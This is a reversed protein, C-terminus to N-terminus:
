KGFVWKGETKKVFLMCSFILLIGSMCILVIWAKYIQCSTGKYMSNLFALIAWRCPSIDAIARIFGPLYPLPLIAGGVFAMFVTILFGNGAATETNGSILVILLMVSCSCMSIVVFSVAMNFLIGKLHGSTLIIFVMGPLFYQFLMVATSSMYKVMIYKLPTIGNQVLRGLTNNEIDDQVTRITFMSNLMIFIVVISIIYYEVPLFGEMSSIFGKQCIIRYRSLINLYFNVAMENYRRVLYERELGTEGLIGWMTNLVTNASNILEIGKGLIERIISVQFPYNGSELIRIESLVENNINQSMNEPIVVVAAVEGNKLMNVAKDYSAYEIKILGRVAESEELHKLIFETEFSEDKNVVAMHFPEINKKNFLGSSLAYSFLFIIIFPTITLLIFDTKKSFYKKVDFYLMMTFKV